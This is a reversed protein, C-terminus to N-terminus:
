PLVTGSVLFYSIKHTKFNDVGKQFIVHMKLSITWSVWFNCQFRLVHLGLPKSNHTLITLINNQDNVWSSSPMCLNIAKLKKPLKSYSAHIIKWFPASLKLILFCAKETEQNPTCYEMLWKSTLLHANVKTLSILCIWHKLMSNQHTWHGLGAPDLASSSCWIWLLHKSKDCKLLLPLHLYILRIWVHCFFLIMQKPEHFIIFLIAQFTMLMFFIFVSLGLLFLFM